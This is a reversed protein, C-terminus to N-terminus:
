VLLAAGDEESVGLMRMRLLRWKVRCGEEVILVGEFRLSGNRRQLGCSNAMLLGLLLLWCLLRGQEQMM